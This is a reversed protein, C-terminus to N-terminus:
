AGRARRSLAARVAADDAATNVSVLRGPDPPPVAVTDLAALLRRLSPGTRRGPVGGPAAPSAPGPAGAPEREVGRAAELLAALARPEYIACVPELTGDPHRFATAAREPRRAAVLASLTETDVLPLDAALVLWAAEPSWRAAAALGSAPGLADTDVIAPLGAFPAAELQDPRLSLFVRTCLPELLGFAWRAQPMGHYDLSGKDKGLRTGRGGALVLGFLPAVRGGPWRAAADM